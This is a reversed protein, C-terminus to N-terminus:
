LLFWLSVVIVVIQPIIGILFKTHRHWKDNKHALFKFHKGESKWNLFVFFDPLWCFFAGLFMNISHASIVFYLTLAIGVLPEISKFLLERKRFKEKSGKALSNIKVMKYHPIADLVWHFAFALVIVIWTNGIYKGLVAGALLHPTALM